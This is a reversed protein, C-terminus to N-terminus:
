RDRRPVCPSRAAQCTQREGRSVLTDSCNCRATAADANQWKAVGQSMSWTEAAHWRLWLAALHWAHAAGPRAHPAHAMSRAQVPLNITDQVLLAEDYPPWREYALTDSHGLVQPLLAAVAEPGPCAEVGWQKVARMNCSTSRAPPSSIPEAAAQCHRLAGTQPSRGLCAASDRASYSSAQQAEFEKGCWGM